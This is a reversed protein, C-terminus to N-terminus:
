AEPTLLAVVNHDPDIVYGVRGVGPYDEAPLAVVGGLSLATETAADVDPVVVRAVVGNIPAGVEPVHDGRPIMAAVTEGDARRVLWIPGMAEFTWGVVAEYFPITAEPRAAHIEVLAISGPAPTSDTM